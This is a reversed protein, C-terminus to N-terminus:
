DFCGSILRYKSWFSVWQKIRYDFKINSFNSSMSNVNDKICDIFDGPILNFYIIGSQIFSPIRIQCSGSNCVRYEVYLECGFNKLM